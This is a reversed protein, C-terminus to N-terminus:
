PRREVPGFFHAENAARRPNLLVGEAAGRKLFRVLSLDRMLRALERVDLRPRKM